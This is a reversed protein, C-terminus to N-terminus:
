PHILFHFEGKKAEPIKVKYHRIAETFIYGGGSIASSILCIHWPQLAILGFFSYGAVALGRIVAGKWFAWDKNKQVM